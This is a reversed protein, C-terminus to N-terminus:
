DKQKIKVLSYCRNKRQKSKIIHWGDLNPPSNKHHHIFVLTAQSVKDNLFSLSQDLLDSDYPPDLFIFDYFISPNWSSTFDKHFLQYSIKPLRDLNKQISALANADIEFADVHDAGQSLAELGLAGSGAFADLVRGGNLDSRIWNFLTERMEGTAPRLGPADPFFLKRGKLLGAQIYIINSKSALM